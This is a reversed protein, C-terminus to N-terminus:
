DRAYHAKCDDMKISLWKNVSKDFVMGYNSMHIFIKFYNLVIIKLIYFVHLSFKYCQRYIEKFRRLCNNSAWLKKFIWVYIGLNKVM